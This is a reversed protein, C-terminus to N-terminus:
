HEFYSDCLLKFQKLQDNTVNFTDIFRFVLNFFGFLSTDLLTNADELPQADPAAIRGEEDWRIFSKLDSAHVAQSQM